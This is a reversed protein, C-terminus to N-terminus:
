DRNTRYDAHCGKCTKALGGFAQGMASNDGSAAAESMATAANAL